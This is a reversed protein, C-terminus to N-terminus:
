QPPLQAKIKDAWQKQQPTLQNVDLTALAERAKAFNKRTIQHQAFELTRAAVVVDVPAAPPV